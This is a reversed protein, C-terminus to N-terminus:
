KVVILEGDVSSSLEESLNEHGDETIVVENEDYWGFVDCDPIDLVPIEVCFTMGPQLILDEHPHMNPREHLQLGIGHGIREIMVASEFGADKVAKLAALYIDGARTGPKILEYAARCAKGGIEALRKAKDTPEGINVVRQLDSFYGSMWPGGDLFIQDGKKYKRDRYHGLVLPYREPGGCTIFMTRSVSDLYGESAGEQIYVKMMEAVLDQETVQPSIFEFARRFAKVNIKAIRRILDIERLSKIMRVDWIMDSGDVFQANPLRRKLEELQEIGMDIRMNWGFEMGIRKNDLKKERIIDEMAMIPDVPNGFTPSGGWSRIDKIGTYMKTVPTFITSQLFVPEGEKPLLLFQIRDESPFNRRVGAFYDVNDESTLLLADLGKCEKGLNAHEMRERVKQRRTAYEEEPFYSEEKLERKTIQAKAM